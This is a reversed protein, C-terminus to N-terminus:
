TIIQAADPRSSKHQASAPVQLIKPGGTVQGCPNGAGLQINDRTNPVDPVLRM